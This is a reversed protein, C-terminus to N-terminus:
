YRSAALQETSLDAGTVVGLDEGFLRVALTRFDDPSGTTYLMHTAATESEVPEAPAYLGLYDLLAAAEAATTHASDVIALGGDM